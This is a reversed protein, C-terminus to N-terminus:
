SIQLQGEHTMNVYKLSFVAILILQTIPYGASLLYSIQIKIDNNSAGMSQCTKLEYRSCCFESKAM